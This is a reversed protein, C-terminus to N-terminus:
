ASFYGLLLYHSLKFHFFRPDTELTRQQALALGVLCCLCFLFILWKTRMPQEETNPIPFVSPLLSLM